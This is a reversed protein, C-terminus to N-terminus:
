ESMMMVGTPLYVRLRQEIAARCQPCSDLRDACSECVLHGCPLLATSLLADMCVKCQMAGQIHRLKEQLVKPDTTDHLDETEKQLEQLSMSNEEHLCSAGSQGTVFLKRRTADHAERWTRKVDFSYRKGLDSNENFLSIFSGKLDRVFQSRVPPNVTECNFFAHKETIARYLGEAAEKSVLKFTMNLPNVAEGGEEFYSISCSRNNTSVEVILQLNTKQTVEAGFLFVGQPGVGVCCNEGHQDKADYMELGYNDFGSTEQLFQYQATNPTMGRLRAHEALVTTEFEECKREAMFYNYKVGQQFDGQEAQAVLASVRAMDKESSVKLKEEAIELKVDQYVLHRTVEQLLLHPQLHFKVRLHLRIPLPGPVQGNIPNRLNLWLVEGKKGMYQLGFYDNEITGLKKCVMDLCEQGIAKPSIDVEILTSDPKKVLVAM